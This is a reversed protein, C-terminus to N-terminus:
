RLEEEHPCNKESSEIKAMGSKLHFIDLIKHSVESSDLIGRILFLAGTIDLSRLRLLGFVCLV